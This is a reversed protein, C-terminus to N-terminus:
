FSQSKTLFFDLKKVGCNGFNEANASNKVNDVSRIIVM